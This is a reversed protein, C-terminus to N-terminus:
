CLIVSWVVQMYNMFLSIWNLELRLSWMLKRTFSAFSYAVWIFYTWDNTSFIANHCQCLIIYPTSLWESEHICPVGVVVLPSWWQHSKAYPLFDPLNSRMM